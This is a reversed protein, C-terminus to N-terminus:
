TKPDVVVVVVVVSAAFAVRVEVQWDAGAVAEGVLLYCEKKRCERM